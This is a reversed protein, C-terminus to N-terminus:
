QNELHARLQPFDYGAASTAELIEDATAHGAQSLAWLAACRTGTRCYALVKDHEAVVKAFAITAEETFQGSVIPIHVFKMGAAEVAAQIDATLPQGMEEGDPRNSIVVSFGQAKIEAIKSLDIQESVSVKGNIKKM